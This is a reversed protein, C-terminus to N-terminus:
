LEFLNQGESQMFSLLWSTTVYYFIQILKSFHKKIGLFLCALSLSLGLFLKRHKHREQDRIQPSTEQRSVALSFYQKAQHTIKWYSNNKYTQLNEFYRRGRWDVGVYPLRVANGRVQSKLAHKLIEILPIKVKGLILLPKPLQCRERRESGIRYVNNRSERDSECCWIIM